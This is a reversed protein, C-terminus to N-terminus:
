FHLPRNIARVFAAHIATTHMANLKAAQKRAELKAVIFGITLSMSLILMALLAIAAPTIPM